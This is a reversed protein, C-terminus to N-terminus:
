PFAGPEAPVVPTADVIRVFKGVLRSNVYTDERGDVLLLLAEKLDKGDPLSRPKLMAFNQLLEEVIRPSHDNLRFETNKAKWSFPEYFEETFSLKPEYGDKSSWLVEVRKQVSSCKKAHPEGVSRLCWRCSPEATVVDDRGIKVDPDRESVIPWTSM